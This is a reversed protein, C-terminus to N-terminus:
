TSVSVRARMVTTPRPTPRISASSSRRSSTRTTATTDDHTLRIGIEGGAPTYKFANSLVNVVVKDFNSRDIWVPLRDCDHEFSFNIQRSKAQHGFLTYIDNIFGVLNQESMRMQMQGKDIKRLDMMQNILNLIREANRRITEYVNKREPNDENKILSLLPTIILTMPTRIEHSINMFFRLKAEGM